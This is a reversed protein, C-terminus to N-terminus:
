NASDNPWVIPEIWDVFSSIRTYVGPTNARACGFGFSTVGLLYYMKGKIAPHLNIKAQLPGGSDGQCADVGGALKGACMQHEQLGCWLRNCMPRLFRDCDNNNIIDLDGARLETTTEKGGIETVGWGSGTVSSDVTNTNFRSWLCAPRIREDFNLNQKLEILAIDFYQKPSKYNPHKIIKAIELDKPYFSDKEVVLNKAGIRVIEPVPNAIKSDKRARTCHAASVMFKPSIMSSGCKFVWGGATARWGLAGMHPFEGKETIRGGVFGRGGTLNLCARQYSICEETKIDREEENKIDWIYELCKIEALRRGPKKFNPVVIERSCPNHTTNTATCSPAGQLAKQNAAAQRDSAEVNVENRVADPLNFEQFVQNGPTSDPWTQFTQGSPNEFNGQFFQNAQDLLSSQDFAQFEHLLDRLESRHEFDHIDKFVQDIPLDLDDEFHQNFQQRFENQPRDPGHSVQSQTYTYQSSWQEHSYCTTVLCVVFSITKMMM